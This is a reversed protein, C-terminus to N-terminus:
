KGSKEVGMLERYDCKLFSSLILAKDEPIDIFGNEFKVIDSYIIESRFSLEDLSLGANVRLNEMLSIKNVM